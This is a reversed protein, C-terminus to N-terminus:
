VLLIGDLTRSEEGDDHNSSSTNAFRNQVVALHQCSRADELGAIRVNQIGSQVRINAPRILMRRIFYLPM